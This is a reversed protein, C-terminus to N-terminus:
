GEEKREFLKLAMDIGASLAREYTSFYFGRNANEYGRFKHWLKFEYTLNEWYIPEVIIHWNHVERMWKQAAALTPADAIVKDKLTRLGNQSQATHISWFRVDTENDFACYYHDCPWDFGAKKLALALPYSVYDTTEM